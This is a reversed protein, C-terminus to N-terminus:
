ASAMEDSWNPSDYLSTPEVAAARSVAMWTAAAGDIRDKSKGKHMTRNGASDIHIAVNGFNWRLVPHGAHVLKEALIIRELENLAPSQTLWGQRMTATPLGDETLPNMVNSAYAPDFNIERVDFRECLGRICDAVASYDIVNGPTAHIFGGNSWSVYDVGDHDGRKAIDDAPCFFHPLLIFEDDRRVCAVVASLDRSRSMDVGIWCPLGDIDDPIPRNGKDWVDMEVFPSTSHELWLNLNYQLFVDRNSPSKVAKQAADRYSALDPYGYRMGPNVRLWNAEDTWDDGKELAFIVPLTAPDDIEGKQVGVAYSDQEFALNDQGRGATTMTVFLADPVKVAASELAGWLRRGANGEWVHVEDALVLAYTGGHLKNGDAAVAKYIGRNAPFTIATKSSGPYVKLHKQLRRDNEVIMASENFVELSQEHSAAAGIIRSAPTREPGFLHLLALAGGLSSKRNGRPLRLWVRRVIRQGKRAIRIGTLSDFQDETYRPGYIRRIIREFPPDIQFPHGPAPNKPHKLRKLWLVAREGYGYPDPIPSDDYVWEPVLM